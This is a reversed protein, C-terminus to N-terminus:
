QLSQVITENLLGSEALTKAGETLKKRPFTTMLDFQVGPTLTAIHQTLQLVTHTHNAKIVKRSGDHLRIQLTTVPKAENLVLEAAPASASAAVGSSSAAAEDRMSRGEGGFPKLTVPPPKYPEGSRDIIHVDGETRGDAGMLEAPMRGRNVDNLFAANEPDEGSRLPGEDVTFGNAYFTITHEEPKEPAAEGPTEEASALSRGAGTFSSSAAEPQGQRWQDVSQAGMEESARKMFERPDLIEQGSGGGHQGQGGAYYAQRQEDDNEEKFDNLGRINAM